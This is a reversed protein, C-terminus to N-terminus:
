LGEYALIAVPMIEFQLLDICSLIKIYTLYITVAFFLFCLIM